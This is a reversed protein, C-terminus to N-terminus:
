KLYDFLNTKGYSSAVGLLAQNQIEASRLSTAVQATDASLLSSQQAAFLAHQSNAYGTTTNLRSLSSDITSRQVSVAGLAASLATSDAQVAASNGSGLDSVLQNLTGLLNKGTATFVDSGPINLSLSQGDPTVVSRTVQDGNYSVTAPDSAPDLTFPKADGASGSFFM